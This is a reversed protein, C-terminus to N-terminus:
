TYIKFHIYALKPRVSCYLLEDHFEIFSDEKVCVFKKKINSCKKKYQTFLKSNSRNTLYHTYFIKSNKNM